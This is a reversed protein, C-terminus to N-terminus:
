NECWNKQQHVNLVTTWEPPWLGSGWTSRKNGCPSNFLEENSWNSGYKDHENIAGIDKKVTKKQLMKGESAYNVSRMTKEIVKDNTFEAKDFAKFSHPNKQIHGLTKKTNSERWRECRGSMKKNSVLDRRRQDIFSYIGSNSLEEDLIIKWNAAKDSVTIDSRRINNANSCKLCIIKM